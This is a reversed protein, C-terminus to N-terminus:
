GGGRLLPALYDVFARAAPSAARGAPFLAHAEVPDMSWDPMVRVLSGRELEARCAWLSTATIGLGATAAAVAGENAASTLRGEVRISVRRDSKIFTWADPGAGGPGLILAHAALDAPDRPRGRRELYSPSGALLRPAEALKRSVLASNPLLGLRLAVDVGDVVLDQRADNIGLDVRLAPHRELFDPLRPIVERVGFSSSLAIRLVGRLEGTGRAAHDAEELGLLLPEIRALYDAGADTLTVRRTTRMLLAAGVEKELGALIRSVSPQSLGLERGARSFSGSHATRVYARLALLRDTM